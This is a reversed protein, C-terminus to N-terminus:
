LVATASPPRFCGKTAQPAMAALHAVVFAHDGAGFGLNIGGHDSNLDATQSSKKDM